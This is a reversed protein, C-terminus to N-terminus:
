TFSPRISPITSVIKCTWNCGNKTSSCAKKCRSHGDKQCRFACEQYIKECGQQCELFDARAQVIPALLGLLTMFCVFVNLLKMKLTLYLTKLLNPKSNIFIQDFAAKIIKKSKM